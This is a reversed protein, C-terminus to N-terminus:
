HSRGMHDQASHSRNNNARNSAPSNRADAYRRISGNAAEIGGSMQHTLKTSFMLMLEVAYVLVKMQELLPETNLGIGELWGLAIIVGIWLTYLSM